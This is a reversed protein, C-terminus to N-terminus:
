AELGPSHCTLGPWWVGSGGCRDGHSIIGKPPLHQPTYLKLAQKGQAQRGRTPASAQQTGRELPPTNQVGVGGAAPKAPLVLSSFALTDHAQAGQSGRM